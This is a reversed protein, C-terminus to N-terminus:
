QELESMIDDLSYTKLKGARALEADRKLLYAHEIADLGTELADTIYYSLPRNTEAALTDLREKIQPTVRVTLVKKPAQKTSMYGSYEGAYVYALGQWFIRQAFM